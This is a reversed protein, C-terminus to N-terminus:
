LRAARGAPAPQRGRLELGRHRHALLEQGRRPRVADKGAIMQAYVYPELRHVESIDERYAPAIQKYYDFARDGRGLVTEGIIVWPNNHCFIGRTRRTARRTPASRASSSTTADHVGPNLLVIGHETELM